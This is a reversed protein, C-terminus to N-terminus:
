SWGVKFGMATLLDLVLGFAPWTLFLAVLQLPFLDRALRRRHESPPEPGSGRLSACLRQDHRWAALRNSVHLAWVACAIAVLPMLLGYLFFTFYIVHWSVALVLTPLLLQYWGLWPRDARLAITAQDFGRGCEPCTGVRPHGELNFGCSPCPLVRGSGSLTMGPPGHGALQTMHEAVLETGEAGVKVPRGPSFSRSGRRRM